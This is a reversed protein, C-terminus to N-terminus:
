RSEPPGIYITADYPVLDKAKGLKKTKESVLREVLPGVFVKEIGRLGADKGCARVTKMFTPSKQLTDFVFTNAQSPYKAGKINGKKRDWNPDKLAAAVIENLLADADPADSLRLPQHCRELRSADPSSSCSIVTLSLFFLLYIKM